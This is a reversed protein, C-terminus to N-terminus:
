RSYFNINKYSNNLKNLKRTKAVIFKKYQKVVFDERNGNLAMVRDIEHQLQMIEELLKNSLEENTEMLYGDASFVPISQNAM